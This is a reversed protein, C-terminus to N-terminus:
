SSKNDLPVHEIDSGGDGTGERRFVCGAVKVRLASLLSQTHREVKSSQATRNAGTRM